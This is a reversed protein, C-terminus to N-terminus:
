NEDCSEEVMTGICTVIAAVESAHGTDSEDNGTNPEPVDMVCRETSYLEWGYMRDVVQGCAYRCYYEETDAEGWFEQVGSWEEDTLAESIDFDAAGSECDSGGDCGVLGFCLLPFLLKM